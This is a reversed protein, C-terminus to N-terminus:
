TKSMQATVLREQFNKHLQDSLPAGHLRRSDDTSDEKKDKRKEGSQPATPHHNNSAAPNLTGNHNGFHFFHALGGPSKKSGEDSHSVASAGSPLESAFSVL